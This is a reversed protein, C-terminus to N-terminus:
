LHASLCDRTNYWVASQGCWLRECHPLRPTAPHSPWRRPRSLSVPWAAPRHLGCEDGWVGRGKDWCRFQHRGPAVVLSDCDCGYCERAWCALISSASKIESVTVPPLLQNTQWSMDLRSFFNFSSSAGRIHGPPMMEDSWKQLCLPPTSRWININNLIKQLSSSPLSPPHSNHSVTGNNVPPFDVLLQKKSWNITQTPLSDRFRRRTM